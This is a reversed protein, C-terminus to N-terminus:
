RRSRRPTLARDFIGCLGDAYSELTFTRQSWDRARQGLEPILERNRCLIEIKSALDGPDGCRYLYGNVGNKILELTGARDAGIVPKGLKMAEVTVRGFAESRSCILAIDANAFYEFPNLTFDIFRVCDGLGLRKALARLLAGYVETEAGLLILELDYGKNRLLRSALIADEQGKGETKSGALLIRLRGSNSRLPQDTCPPVDVAYYIKDIRDASLLTRYKELVAQSNVIFRRSLFRMLALSPRRGLGFTFGHDEEGFEHIYWLHPIRKIGSAIAASPTAITNTMVLDPTIAELLPLLGRAESCFKLFSRIRRHPPLATPSLWWSYPRVYTPAGLREVENRLRGETPLVAHIDIEPRMRLCKVGELFAREAGFMLASHSFWLVKM